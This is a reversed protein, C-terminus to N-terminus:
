REGAAAPTSFVFDTATAPDPFPSNRAFEYAEAVVAKVDVEAADLAAQDVQGAALLAESLLVLPDRRKWAEVEAPTRYGADRM